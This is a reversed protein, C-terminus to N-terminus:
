CSVFKNAGFIRGLSVVLPGRYLLYVGLAVVTVRGLVAWGAMASEGFESIVGTAFMNGTPSALQTLLTPIAIMTFPSVM